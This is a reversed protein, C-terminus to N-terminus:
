PWRGPRRPQVERPPGPRGPRAPRRGPRWHAPGSGRTWGQVARGDWAARHVALGRRRFSPALSLLGAPPTLRLQRRKTRRMPGVRAVSITTPTTATMATTTPSTTAPPPEDLLEVAVVDVVAANVATSWALVAAGPTVAVLM